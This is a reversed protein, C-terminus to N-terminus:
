SRWAVLLIILVAITWMTRYATRGCREAAALLIALPVVIFLVANWYYMWNM